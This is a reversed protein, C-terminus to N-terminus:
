SDLVLKVLEFANLHPSDFLYNHSFSYSANAPKSDLNKVKSQGNTQKTLNRQKM